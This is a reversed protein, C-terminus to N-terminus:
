SYPTNFKSEFTCFVWPVFKLRDVLDLAVGVRLFDESLMPGVAASPVVHSGKRRSGGFIPPNIDDASPEGALVNGVGPVTITDFGLSATQEAFGNAHSASDARSPNHQFVHCRQKSPPHSGNDCGKGLDPIHAFPM